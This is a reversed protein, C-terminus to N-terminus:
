PYKDQGDLERLSEVICGLADFLLDFIGNKTIKKTGSAIDLGFRALIAQTDVM